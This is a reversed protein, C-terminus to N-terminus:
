KALMVEVRRDHTAGGASAPPEDLEFKAGRLPQLGSRPRLLLLALLLAVLATAALTTFLGRDGKM